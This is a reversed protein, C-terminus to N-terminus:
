LSASAVHGRYGHRGGQELRRACRLTGGVEGARACRPHEGELTRVIHERREDNRRRHRFQGQQGVDCNGERAVRNVECVRGVIKLQEGAASKSEAQSRLYARLDLLPEASVEVVRNAAHGVLDAGDVGDEIRPLGSGRQAVLPGIVTM